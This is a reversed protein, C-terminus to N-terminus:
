KAKASILPRSLSWWNAHSSSPAPSPWAEAFGLGTLETLVDIRRPPLGMQFVVGPRSLDDTTVDQLPAGVGQNRASLGSRTFGSRM